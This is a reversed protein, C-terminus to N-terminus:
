YALDIIWDGPHWAQNARAGAVVVLGSDADAAYPLAAVAVTRDSFVLFEVGDLQDSGEGTVQVGSALRRVDYSSFAMSFVVTDTGGGGSVIDDGAGVVVRDSGEGGTVTSGGAGSYVQSGGNGALAKQITVGYAVSINRQGQVTESFGGARLDITVFGTCASFDFTNSGGGDWICSALSTDDFAYVDDGSRHSRNAGYLYQIAQIDYLMPTVAYRGTLAHATPETYSMQTYDGNDTEPPLYPGDVGGGTSDYNGPHKLGLMHGIEHLVVSPGYSGPTFLRNFGADADLYMSVSAGSSDPLYAYASSGYQQNTGFQLAGNADVEAFTLNAVESWLKLADRVAQRQEANMPAFGDLDEGSADAPPAVLFSFSLTQPTGPLRSWSSYVLADIANTGTAFSM